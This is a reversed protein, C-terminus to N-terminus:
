CAPAGAAGGSDRNAARHLMLGLGILVPVDDPVATASVDITGSTRLLGGLKLSMAQSGDVDEWSFQRAWVGSIRLRYRRGGVEADGRGMLGTERFEGVASGGATEALLTRGLLGSTTFTLRDPGLNLQASRTLVGHFTITGEFGGEDVLRLSSDVLSPQTVTITRRM